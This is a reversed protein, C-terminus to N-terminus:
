CASAAWRTAARPSPPAAEIRSRGAARAHASIWIQRSRAMRADILWDRSLGDVGPRKALRRIKANELDVEYLEASTAELKPGTKLDSTDLTIGGYYAYHRGERELIGYFGRVGGTINGNKEFVVWSKSGDLPIVIDTSLNTRAATFDMDLAITHRVRVLVREEGAWLVDEIKMAGISVQSLLKNDRSVVLLRRQEGAVGIIAVKEGSPSLAAMEFGPLSGYVSLPTVAYAASASGFAASVAVLFALFIRHM